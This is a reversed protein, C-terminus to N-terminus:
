KFFTLTNQKQVNLQETNEKKEQVPITPVVSGVKKLTNKIKSIQPSVGRVLPLVRNAINLVRLSNTLFSTFNQYM